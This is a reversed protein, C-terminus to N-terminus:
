LRSKMKLKAQFFSVVEEFLSMLEDELKEKDERRSNPSTLKIKGRKVNDLITNIFYKVLPNDNNSACSKVTTGFSWSGKRAHIDAGESILAALIDAHECYQAVDMLVTHGVDDTANVNAGAEVLTHVIMTKIPDHGMRPAKALMTVLRAPNHGQLAVEEVLSKLISVGDINRISSVCMLVTRGFDLRANVDAGADILLRVIRIDGGVVACALPTKYIGECSLNVYAGAEILARVATLNGTMVACYLPTIDDEDKANVDAGSNIIVRIREDSVQKNGVAGFLEKTALNM